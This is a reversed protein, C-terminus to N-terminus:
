LLRSVANSLFNKSSKRSFLIKSFIAIKAAKQSNFLMALVCSFNHNKHKINENETGATHVYSTRRYTSGVRRLMSIIRSVWIKCFNWFYAARARESTSDNKEKLLVFHDFLFFIKKGVRTM